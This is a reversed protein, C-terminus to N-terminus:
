FPGQSEPHPQCLSTCKPLLCTPHPHPIQLRGSPPSGPRPRFWGQSLRSEHCLAFVMPLVLSKRGGKSIHM